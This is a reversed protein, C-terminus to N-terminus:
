SHKHQYSYNELTLKIESDIIVMYKQVTKIYDLIDSLTIDSANDNYHIINNRKIVIINIVTKLDNFQENNELDIGIRKFLNVTRYPRASIHEDLDKKKISFTLEMFDLQKNDTKSKLNFSWKTLNTPIGLGNLRDNYIQITSYSIDKIFSELYSCITVLFSKTLFNLNNIFFEESSDALIKRNVDKVIEELETFKENYDSLYEM